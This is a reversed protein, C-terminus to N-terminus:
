FKFVLGVTPEATHMMVGTHLDVADHFDPASYVLGRYQARLAVAKALRIDAGGGYLLTPRNERSLPLGTNNLASTTPNFVLVGGGVLVFPRVPGHGGRLVLAGTVEHMGAQVGVVNGFGFNYDQSNRTYGYNAEVGAYRNLYYRFSFLAGASNTPTQQIGNGTVSQGFVGALNASVDAHAGQALAAGTMTILLLALL